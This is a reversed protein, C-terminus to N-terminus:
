CRLTDASYWMRDCNQNTQMWRPYARDPRDHWWGNYSDSAFERNNYYAWAGSDYDWIVADDGHHRHRSDGDVRAHGNPSGGHHHGHGHSDSEAIAPSSLLGMSAAAAFGLLMMRM